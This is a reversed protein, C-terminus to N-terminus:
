KLDRKDKKDPRGEVVYFHITGKSKNMWVDKIHFGKIDYPLIERMQKTNLIIEERKKVIIKM